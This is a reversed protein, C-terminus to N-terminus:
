AAGQGWSDPQLLTIQYKNTYEDFRYHIMGKQSLSELALRYAGSGVRIRRSETSLFLNRESPSLYLLQAFIYFETPSLKQEFAENPIRIM